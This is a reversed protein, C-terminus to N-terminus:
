GPIGAGDMASASRAAKRRERKCDQLRLRTAIDPDLSKCKLASASFDSSGPTRRSSSCFPPDRRTVGDGGKM